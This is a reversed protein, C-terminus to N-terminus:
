RAVAESLIMEIVTLDSADKVAVRKRSDLLYLAPIAKLDYLLGNSIASKDDRAYIWESPMEAAYKRWEDVDDDPYLMLIKLRGSSVNQRVIDSAELAMRIDRCMPCGPNNFFLLLYEAQTGYLSSRRGDFTIYEFDNAAHGPRNQLAMRLRHRPAKKELEDISDTAMICELVPIYLEDDRLQSNPDYLVKEALFMFYRFTNSSAEARQMLRVLPSTDGPPVLQVAYLAFYRLMASTDQGAVYASDAFQFDDWFHDLLYAQADEHQVAAPVQLSPTFIRSAAHGADRSGNERVSRGGCAFLMATAAAVLILHKWAHIM